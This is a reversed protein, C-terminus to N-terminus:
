SNYSRGRMDDYRTYIYRSEALVVMVSVNTKYMVESSVFANIEIDYSSNYSHQPRLLYYEIGTDSMTRKQSERNQPRVNDEKDLVRNVIKLASYLRRVKVAGALRASFNLFFKKWIKYLQSNLREFWVSNFVYEYYAFTIKHQM